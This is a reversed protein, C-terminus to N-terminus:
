TIWTRFIAVVGVLYGGGRSGGPEWLRPCRKGCRDMSTPVIVIWPYIWKHQCGRLFEQLPTACQDSRRHRCEHIAIVIMSDIREHWNPRIWM